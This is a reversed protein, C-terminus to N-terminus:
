RIITTAQNLVVDNIELGIAEATKLNIILQAESTEIPLDAPKVGHIIQGTIRAAIKGGNFMDAKFTILVDEDLGLSAGTPVGRKIAASTLENSRANLIASPILFVADIDGPLHLIADVTEEVSDIKQIILEIELQPLAKDLKALEMATVTEDPDCPLWVKKADPTIRILWELAKSISDGTKVGTINGGPHSMSDVLGSEVPSPSGILLVSTDTGKVLEKARLAVENEKILLMDVDQSLIERIQADISQDNLEPISQYIFRYDRDEVYGLDTMGAKFGQFGKEEAMRHGIIGITFIEPPANCGAFMLFLLVAAISWIIGTKKKKGM